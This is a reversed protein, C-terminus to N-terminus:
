TGTIIADAVDDVYCLPYVFGPDCPIDTAVGRESNRILRISIVTAARYLPRLHPELRLSVGSLAWIEGWLGPDAPECAVRTAGYVSTPRV